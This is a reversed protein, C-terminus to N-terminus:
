QHDPPQTKYKATDSKRYIAISKFQGIKQNKIYEPLTTVSSYREDFIIYDAKMKLVAELSSENKGLPITWGKQNMLYLTVNPSYDFYSLVEQDYRIGLSRLYPEIDHYVLYSDTGSNVAGAISFREKLFKRTTIASTVVTALVVVILTHQILKRKHYKKIAEASVLLQFFFVPFLAIIYYEHNTFQRVMLIAFSATGLYLFILIALLLKNTHRLNLMMLLFSVSFIIYFGTTHYINSYRFWILKLDFILEHYSQPPKMAMLFIWSQYTENLYKAYIYWGFTLFSILISIIIFKTSHHFPFFRKESRMILNIISVSIITVISILFTIKILCALAGTIGFLVFYNTSPVKISRFFYYWSILILGLGAADPLFNPSYYTLAPSIYVCIVLLASLLTNKLLQNLIHMMAILGGSILSLMTARYFFENFGFLKYLIAVFYNVAPFELGSIGTKGATYNVRPLFFNMSEQAYNRAVSARDCQAWTHDSIPRLSIYQDFRLYYFLILLTVIFVTTPKQELQVLLKTLVKAINQSFM